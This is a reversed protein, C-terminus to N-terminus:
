CNIRAPQYRHEIVWSVRDFVVVCRQMMAHMLLRELVSLRYCYTMYCQWEFLTCQRSWVESAFGLPCWSLSEVGRCTAASRPSVFTTFVSISSPALRCMLFARPWIGLPWNSWDWRAFQSIIGNSTAKNPTFASNELSSASGNNLNLATLTRTVFGGWGCYTVTLTRFSSRVIPQRLNPVLRATM